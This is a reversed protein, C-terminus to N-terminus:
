GRRPPDGPSVFWTIHFVCRHRSQRRYKLNSSFELRYDLKNTAHVTASSGHGLHVDAAEVTLDGLSLQSSFGGNLKAIRASGDLTARSGHEAELEVHGGQIVGALTSGHHVPRSAKKPSPMSRRRQATPFSSRPMASSWGTWRSSVEMLRWGAARYGRDGEPGGRQRADREARARGAAITGELLSGHSATAEFPGHSEFGRIAARAGHSLGLSYLAPM